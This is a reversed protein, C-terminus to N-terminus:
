RGKRDGLIKAKPTENKALVPRRKQDVKLVPHGGFEQRLAALVKDSFADTERSRFRQFLSSAIVPAPVAMDIAQQV